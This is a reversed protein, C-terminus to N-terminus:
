RPRCTSAVAKGLRRGESSGAPTATTPPRQRGEAMDTSALFIRFQRKRRQLFRVAEDIEFSLASVLHPRLGASRVFVHKPPAESAAALSCRLWEIKRRAYDVDTETVRAMYATTAPLLHAKQQLLSLEGM